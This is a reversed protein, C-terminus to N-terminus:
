AEENLKVAATARVLGSSAADGVFGQQQVSSSEKEKSLTQSLKLRVVKLTM